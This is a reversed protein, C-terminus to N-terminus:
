QHSEFSNESLEVSIGEAQDTPLVLDTKTQRRSSEVM